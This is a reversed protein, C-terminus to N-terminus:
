LYVARFQIFYWILLSIVVLVLGISAKAMIRNWNCYTSIYTPVQPNSPSPLWFLRSSTKGNALLSPHVVMTQKEEDTQAVRLVYGGVWWCPFFLFGFLFLLSQQHFTPLIIPQQYVVAPTQSAVSTLTSITALTQRRSTRKPSKWRPSPLVHMQCTWTSRRNKKCYDHWSTKKRPYSKRHHYKIDSM